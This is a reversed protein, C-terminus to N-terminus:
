VDFEWWSRHRYDSENSTRNHRQKIARRICLAWYNGLPNIVGSGACLVVSHNQHTIFCLYLCGAKTELSNELFQHINS